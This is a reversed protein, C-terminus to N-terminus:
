PSYPPFFSSPSPLRTTNLERTRHPLFYASGPALHPFFDETELVMHVGCSYYLCDGKWIRKTNCVEPQSREHYQNPVLSAASSHSHSRLPVSKAETSRSPSFYRDSQTHVASRLCCPPDSIHDTTLSLNDVNWVM